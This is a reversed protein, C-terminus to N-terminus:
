RAEERRRSDLYSQLVVAAAAADLLAKQRSPEIGSERLLREAEVSSLREDRSKVPLDTRASLARIFQATLRAQPGRRGSLSIPLGVLIEEAGHEQALRLVAEIDDQENTRTITTLPRALLGLPDSLAVGIRREGVDLALVRM